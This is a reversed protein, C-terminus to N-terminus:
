STPNSEDLELEKLYENISVILLEYTDQL